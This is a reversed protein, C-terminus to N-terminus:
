RRPPWVEKGFFASRRLPCGGRRSRDYKEDTRVREAHRRLWGRRGRRNAADLRNWRPRRQPLDPGRAASRQELKSGGNSRQESSVPEPRSVNTGLPKRGRCGALWESLDSE